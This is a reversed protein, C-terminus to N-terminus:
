RHGACEHNLHYLFSGIEGLRRENYSGGPVPHYFWWGIEQNKQIRGLVVPDLTKTQVSLVANGNKDDDLRVIELEDKQARLIDRGTKGTSGNADESM